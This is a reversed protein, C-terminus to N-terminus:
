VTLTSCMRSYFLKAWSGGCQNVRLDNLKRLIQEVTRQFQQIEPKNNKEKLDKLEKKSGKLGIKKKFTGGRDRSPLVVILDEPIKIHDWDYFTSKIEEMM